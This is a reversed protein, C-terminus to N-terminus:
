RIVTLGVNTTVDGAVMKVTYQGSLLMSTTFPVAYSDANKFEQVLTAVEIGLMNYVKVTVFGNQPVVFQVTTNGNTPNPVTQLMSGTLPNDSKLLKVAEVNKNNIIVTSNTQNITGLSKGTVIDIVQYSEKPSDISIAIPYEVGQFRVTPNMANEASSNNTFRTDFMGFPPIPPLEFASVDSVKSLYLENSHQANDSINLKTSSNIIDQKENDIDDSYKIGTPATLKLYGDDSVKIWYGLGPVIESTEFYGRDTRYGWVSKIPKNPISTNYPDFDIDKVNM